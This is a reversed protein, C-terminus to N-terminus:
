GTTPTLRIHSTVLKAVCQADGPEGGVSTNDQQWSAVKDAAYERCSMAYNKKEKRGKKRKEKKKVHLGKKEQTCSSSCTRKSKGLASKAFKRTL